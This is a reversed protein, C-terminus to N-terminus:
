LVADRRGNGKCRQMGNGILIRWAHRGAWEGLVGRMGERAGMKGRVGGVGPYVVTANGWDTIQDM